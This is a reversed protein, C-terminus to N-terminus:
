GHLIHYGIGTVGLFVAGALSLVIAIMGGWSAPHPKESILRLNALLGFVIVLAAYGAAIYGLQRHLRWKEGRILWGQIVTLSFWGTLVAGHVYLFAPLQAVHHFAPRMYFSPSFGLLVVFLLVIHAGLFFSLRTRTARSGLAIATEPAESSM